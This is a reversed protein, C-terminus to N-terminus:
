VTQLKKIKEILRTYYTVRAKDNDNVHNIVDDLDFWKIDSNEDPKIRVETNESIEFLYTVNYHLHCSVYKGKKFHEPYDIVTVDAIKGDLLVRIQDYSIGAEESVEKKAVYLLDTDGDAHGGFWSYTKFTNHHAMLVKSHERNILFASSAIHGVLNERNYITNKSQKLAYIFTELSAREMADFPVYKKLEQILVKYTM